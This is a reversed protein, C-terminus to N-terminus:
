LCLETEIKIHIKRTNRYINRIKVEFQTSAILLVESLNVMSNNLLASLDKFSSVRRSSIQTPESNVSYVKTNVWIVDTTLVTCMKIDVVLNELLHKFASSRKM